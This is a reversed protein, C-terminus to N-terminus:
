KAKNISTINNNSAQYPVLDNLLIEAAPMDLKESYDILQDIKEIILKENLAPYKAIFIKKHATKDREEYEYFLEEFMKEGPRLGTYEIKIDKNPTLGSLLILQEALFSIKVPEGMDLVFIEGGSGMVSSQMILQCAEPITMFYRIIDPHTVTVPGGNKIQEKFLPVVSGISGLVNGFRVTMFKTSSKGNKTEVYMEAVRKSAGLVNSPNVAKDTSIFVFRDCGFESAADAVNRTGLINNKIGERPQRQLIPVHKYAAAHFIMDPKLDSVLKNIFAKDCVNGLIFEIELDIEKLTEELQYLYFESHDLVCLKKPKMATIQRCLESGISGAGGTVLIKKNFLGYRIMGWDLQIKERGLLDEIQVQRLQQLTFRGSVMDQMTPLTRLQCTTQECINIIRRMDRNSASPIALLILDVGHQECLSPIVDTNGIVRIGHIESDLLNAGDDIFGVVQYGPERLIERALMDGATGAGVILVRQDDNQAILKLSHDKIMRYTLRSGGLMFILLIPYIVLISRPIGELRFWMFFILTLALSGVISVRIINWLDALSAFRWIGKHLKYRKYVLGQVLMVAPLVYLSMQWTFYPFDLNFRLCWAFVWAFMAIIFDHAIIVKKPNAKKLTALLSEVM